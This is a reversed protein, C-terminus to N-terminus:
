RCATVCAGALVAMSDILPADVDERGLVLPVETCGAIVADAGAATLARALGAMEARAQAGSDGAKIRQILAM